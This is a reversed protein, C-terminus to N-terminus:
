QAFLTYGPCRAEFTRAWDFDLDLRRGENGDDTIRSRERAILNLLTEQLGPCIGTDVSTTTILSLLDDVGAENTSLQRGGEGVEGLIEAVFFVIQDEESIDAPTTTSSSVESQGGESVSSKYVDINETPAGWSQAPVSAAITLMLLVKM